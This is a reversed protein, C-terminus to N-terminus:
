RVQVYKGLMDYEINLRDGVKRQGLTATSLTQPILHVTFTSDSIDVITLSVGDLSVKECSPCSGYHAALHELDRHNIPGAPDSPDESPFSLNIDSNKQRESSQKAKARERESV